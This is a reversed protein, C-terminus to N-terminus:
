SPGTERDDIELGQLDQLAQLRAATDPEYKPVIPIRTRPDYDLEEIVFDSDPESRARERLEVKNSSYKVLVPAHPDDCSFLGYWRAPPEAKGYRSLVAHRASASRQEPTLKAARALGGQKGLIAAANTQNKKTSKM